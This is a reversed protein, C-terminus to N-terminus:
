KRVKPYNELTFGKFRGKKYFSSDFSKQYVLYGFDLKSERKGSKEM